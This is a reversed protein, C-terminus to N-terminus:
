PHKDSGWCAHCGKDVCISLDVVHECKEVPEEHLDPYCLHLKGSAAHELELDALRNYEDRDVQKGYADHSSRSPLSAEEEDIIGLREQKEFDSTSSTLGVLGLGTVDTNSAINRITRKRRSAM